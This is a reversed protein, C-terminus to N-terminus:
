KYKKNPDLWFTDNHTRNDAHVKRYADSMDIDLIHQTEYGKNRLKANRNQEEIKEQERNKFRMYELFNNSMKYEVWLM